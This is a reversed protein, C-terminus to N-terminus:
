RLGTSPPSNVDYGMSDSATVNFVFLLFSVFVFSFSAAFYFLASVM